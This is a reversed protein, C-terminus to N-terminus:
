HRCIHDAAKTAIQNDPKINTKYGLSTAWGVAANILKHSENIEDSSYDMDIQINVNIQAKLWNAVGISYEAEKWLKSWMDKIRLVRDTTYIYHVGSTGYRYAIVTGYKTYRKKSQSDTGIHIEVLPYKNIIDTTHKIVDVTIGDVTKFIKKM